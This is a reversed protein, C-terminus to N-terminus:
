HTPYSIGHIATTNPYYSVPKRSRFCKQNTSKREFKDPKIAQHIQNHRLICIVSYNNNYQGKQIFHDAFGTASNNELCHKLSISQERETSM